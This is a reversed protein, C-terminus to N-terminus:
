AWGDSAFGVYRSADAGSALVDALPQVKVSAVDTVVAGPYGAEPRPAYTNLARACVAGASDPPAAVVVLQPALAVREEEASLTSFSIGAGIDQAVAEATTFYRPRVRGRM